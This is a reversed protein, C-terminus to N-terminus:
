DDEGIRARQSHGDSDHEVTVPLSAGGLNINIRVGGAPGGLGEQEGSKPELGGWRVTSKILDAKVAPSVDQSHILLWSTTLLEEAQARAKMKFTVGKERIETRLAEVRRLFVPDKNLALIDESSLEHRQKIEDLTDGSGELLLAMDMALSDPWRTTHPAPTFMPDTYHLPRHARLLYCPRSCFPFKPKQLNHNSPSVVFRSPTPEGTWTGGEGRGWAGACPACPM